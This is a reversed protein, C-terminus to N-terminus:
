LSIVLGIGVLLPLFIGQRQNTTDIDCRGGLIYLGTGHSTKNKQNQAPPHWGAGLYVM